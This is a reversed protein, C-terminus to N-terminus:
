EDDDSYGISGPYGLLVNVDSHSVTKFM